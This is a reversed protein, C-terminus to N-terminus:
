LDLTHGYHEINIHIKANYGGGKKKPIIVIFGGSTQSTKVKGVQPIFSIM